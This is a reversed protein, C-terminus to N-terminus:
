DEYYARVRLKIGTEAKFYLIDGMRFPIIEKEADEIPWMNLGSIDTHNVTGGEAQVAVSTAEGLSLAVVGSDYSIGQRSSSLEGDILADTDKWEITHFKIM